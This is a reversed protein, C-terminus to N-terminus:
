RVARSAPEARQEDRLDDPHVTPDISSQICKRTTASAPTVSFSRSSNARNIGSELILYLVSGSYEPDLYKREIKPHQIASSERLARQRRAQEVLNPRNVGMYLAYASSYDTIGNHM